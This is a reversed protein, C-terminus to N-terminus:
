RTPGTANESNFDRGENKWRPDHMCEVRIEERITTPVKSAVASAKGRAASGLRNRRGALFQGAIVWASAGRRGVSFTTPPM